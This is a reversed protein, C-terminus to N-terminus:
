LWNVAKSLLANEGHPTVFHPLLQSQSTHKAKVKELAGLYQELGPICSTGGRYESKMELAKM